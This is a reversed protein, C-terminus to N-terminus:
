NNKLKLILRAIRRDVETSDSISQEDIIELSVVQASNESRFADTENPLIMEQVSRKHGCGFYIM